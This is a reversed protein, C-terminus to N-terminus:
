EDFLDDLEWEGEHEELDVVPELLAIIVTAPDFSLEDLCRIIDDLQACDDIANCAVMEEEECDFQDAFLNIKISKRAAAIYDKYGIM